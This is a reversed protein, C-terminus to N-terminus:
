GAVLPPGLVAIEYKSCIPLLKAMDPPGEVASLEKFFEELGGPTITLMARGPTTGSNLYAHPVNRPAWLFDGPGAEIRKGGVEFLFEGELIHFGEGERRHVHLPTGGGPPTIVEIVTAHGASERSSVKIYMTDGLVNLSADAASNGSKIKLGEESKSQNPANM